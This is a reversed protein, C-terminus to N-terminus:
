VAIWDLQVPVRYDTDTGYGGLVQSRAITLRGLRLAKPFHQKVQWALVKAPTSFEDKRSVVVVVHSGESYETGGALAPDFDARSREQLVFYPLAPVGTTKNPVVITKGLTVLHRGIAKEIDDPTM